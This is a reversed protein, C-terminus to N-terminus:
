RDALDVKAWLQLPQMVDRFVGVGQRRGYGGYGGGRRSPNNGMGLGGVRPDRERRLSRTDLEPTLLGIGVNGGVEVGIGVQYEGKDIRALPVKLEYVLKNEGFSLAVELEPVSALPLLRKNHEAGVIIELEGAAMVTTYMSQLMKPNIKTGIGQIGGGRWEQQGERLSETLLWLDDQSLGLPYRVAFKSKKGGESDFSVTFGQRLLKMQLARDTTSLFLYMYEADNALGVIAGEKDFFYKDGWEGDRGDIKIKKQPWSSELKIGGCGCLGILFFLCCAKMLM